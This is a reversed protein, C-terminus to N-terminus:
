VHLGRNFAALVSEHLSESLTPHPFVTRMLERETTELTRAIAYAGILETVDPGIMHAGLFEGTSENFVTKVLGENDGLTLAKGNGLLPFRGVALAHGKERAQEETM